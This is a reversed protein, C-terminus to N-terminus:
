KNIHQYIQEIENYSLEEARVNKNLFLDKYLKDLTNKSYNSKLNNFLTKRKSSFILKIFKNLNIDFKVNQKKDIKIFNSKVEPPPVFSNSNISILKQINTYKQLLVSFSNYESSHPASVMRDVLEKQLMCFMVNVHKTKLFQIIILSSISYPLNSVIICKKYKSAISDLDFKLVDKCYLNVRPQNKYSTLLYEFLKKDVEILHIDVNLECLKKTIAGLGPGIEIIADCNYNKIILDIENIVKNDILFNQGMRKSPNFKYKKFFKSPNILEM